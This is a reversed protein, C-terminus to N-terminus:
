NNEYKDIVMKINIVYLKLKYCFFIESIELWLNTRNKGWIRNLYCSFHLLVQNTQLAWIFLSNVQKQSFILSFYLKKCFINIISIDKLLNSFIHVYTNWNNPLQTVLRFHVLLCWYGHGLFSKDKTEVKLGKNEFGQDRNWSKLRPRISGQILKVKLLFDFIRSLPKGHGTYKDQLSTEKQFLLNQGM